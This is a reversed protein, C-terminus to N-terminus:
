RASLLAQLIGVDHRDVPRHPYGERFALQQEISLCPVPRGDITGTAFGTAAYRFSEGDHGAQLGSGDDAFAVPHVDVIRGDPAALEIRSPAWDTTVVFGERELLELLAQLHRADVALDLDRHSRTQRGVLADVAWGGGAWASVGAVAFSHFLAVVDSGRM